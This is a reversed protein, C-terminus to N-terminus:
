YQREGCHPKAEVSSPLTSASSSCHAFNRIITSSEFSTHPQCTHWKSLMTLVFVLIAALAAAVGAIAAAKVWGSEKTSEEESEKAETTM